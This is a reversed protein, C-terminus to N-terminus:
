PKAFSHATAPNFASEGRPRCESRYRMTLEGAQEAEGM